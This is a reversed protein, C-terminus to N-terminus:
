RLSAMFRHWLHGGPLGIIAQLVSCGNRYYGTSPRTTADFGPIIDLTVLQRKVILLIM